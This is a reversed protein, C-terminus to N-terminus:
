RPVPTKEIIDQLVKADTIGQIQADPKLVIRHAIVPQYLRKIDDPIVYDRGQLIALTRSASTLMLTSRPSAGCLIFPNERTQRVLNVIYRVVNDSVVINQIYKQVGVLQKINTVVEVGLDAPRASVAGRQHRSVMEIEATESPYSVILKLLFRDLQAEPLPYTGEQEIPNQTAAVFFIDSLRHNVGDITVEFEQMAQLLASQTKPPTRNIEDALLFQTFIPGKTLIFENKQFNFINTGLIDAPMLDPTFQIRKFELGLIHALTRMLLTKATGPVGELLVHGSSLLGVLCFQAIDDQGIVVKRVENLIKNNLHSIKEIFDNTGEM